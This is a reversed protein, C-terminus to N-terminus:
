TGAGSVRPTRGQLSGGPVSSNGSKSPNMKSLARRKRVNDAIFLGGVLSGVGFISFVGALKMIQMAEANFAGATPDYRFCFHLFFDGISEAIQGDSASLLAIRLQKSEYELGSLYNSVRGDPTLVYMVSPHSFEGAQPLFRYDFGVSDALRRADQATATHFLFSKEGLEDLGRRYANHHYTEKGRAMSTTNRHDFSVVIVQYDEGVDFTVDNIVDNMHGLMVECMKPCSYYVLLLVTPRENDFYDGILVTEGDANIVPIDKPVASGRRDDVELGDIEKPLTDSLVQARADIASTALTIATLIAVALKRM